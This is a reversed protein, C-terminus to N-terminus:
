PTAAEAARPAAELTADVYADASEALLAHYERFVSRVETGPWGPPILEEPLGPDVYPFDLFAETLEFRRAFADVGELSSAGGNRLAAEYQPRYMRIFSRYARELGDLNWARAM